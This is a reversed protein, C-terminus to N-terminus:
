FQFYIFSRDVKNDYFLFLGLIMLAYLAFRLIRSNFKFPNREDKRILYEYLVFLVLLILYDGMRYNMPHAYAGISFNTCMRKFYIMASGLNESRFFVWGLSVLIFTVLVKGIELFAKVNRTLSITKLYKRHHGGLFVPIFLLAHFLGWFIFTWNAGHWFGSILFIILVNRIAKTTGVRSGGLPIYLYDRFWTSLSIHWRRWFEAINRSFYPFKFNSMLEIGLLKATGIAMDSYGSFDGYIQFGFLVAGLVLTSSPYSHYNVFIDDVIPALSDAIAVKKFLGWLILRLGEIAQSYRFERKKLLQPLLNSAREIPGAVLQPFFAVFTAFTILDGTPKMKRNYIDLSYSMTQFTYFSIGVPLIITLTWLDNPNYGFLGMFEAMSDIFFNYYKFFGLM